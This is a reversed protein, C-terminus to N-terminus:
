INKVRFYDGRTLLECITYGLLTGWRMAIWLRHLREMSSFDPNMTAKRTHWVQVEQKQLCALTEQIAADKEDFDLFIGSMELFPPGRYNKKTLVM